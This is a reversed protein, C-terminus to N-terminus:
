ELFLLLIMPVIGLVLAALQFASKKPEPKDKRLEPILDSGAIYIFNGAAFPILLPVFGEIVSGLALAIIAGVVATLATLFNFFVAKKKSFGGYVLVGFDGMEQPIEHFIVAITTAIGLPISALYSAGIILGDILNHVSDGFLNMYAFSHPHEGSTPIHCHRWQLFREVAFSSLIGTLIILGTTTEFGTEIAEPLLHLFVDGLLGGAAFSVLYIFAKKLKTESVWLFSIGGLAIASVAIVSLITLAWEIM